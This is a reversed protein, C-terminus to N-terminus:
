EENMLLNNKSVNEDDYFDMFVLSATKRWM